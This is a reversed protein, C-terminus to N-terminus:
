RPSVLQSSHRPAARAVHMSSHEGCACRYEMHFGGPEPSLSIIDESGLLVRGGTQRCYAAFM